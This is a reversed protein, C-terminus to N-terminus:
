RAAPLRRWSYMGAPKEARVAPQAYLGLGDIRGEEIWRLLVPHSVEFEDFGVRLMHSFQDPLVQGVARVAGGYGYRRRLIEAKSFSRGDNFAPFELAVLPLSELHEALAEIKDGPKLRVGIRHNARRRAEADLALYAALPLIVDGSEAIADPEDLHRWNDQRFGDLTWLRVVPQEATESM